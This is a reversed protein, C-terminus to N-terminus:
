RRFLFMKKSPVWVPGEAIEFGTALVELDISKDLFDSVREDQSEVECKQDQTVENVSEDASTNDIKKNPSCSSLLVGTLIILNYIFTERM